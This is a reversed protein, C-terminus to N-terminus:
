SMEEFRQQVEHPLSAAGSICMNISSLDYNHIRSHNILAIYMTPAGPFVTPKMRSILPLLQNVDFRPVLILSGGLLVSQNLLVTLGFVHFFPLAALYREKGPKSRYAWLSTQITNAIVNYHTLMVGKALGTTGGTYQLLALDNEADVDTHLPSRSSDHMLKVFSHVGDEYAVDLNMGDKKAKLPYLLNKPFPLYDKISTIIVHRLGTQPLIDKVKRHLLDLTLIVSAGSDRLQHQLERPMYLPNTMVVVAG